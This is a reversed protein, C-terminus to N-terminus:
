DEKIQLRRTEIDNKRKVSSQIVDWGARKEQIKKEGSEIKKM